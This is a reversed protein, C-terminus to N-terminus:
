LICHAFEICSPCPCGVRGDEPTSEWYLREYRYRAADRREEQELMDAQQVDSREPLVEPAKFKTNEPDDVSNSILEEYLAKPRGKILPQKLASVTATHSQAALLHDM